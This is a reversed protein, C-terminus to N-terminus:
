RRRTGRTGRRGRRTGGRKKNIQEWKRRIKEELANMAKQDATLKDFHSTHRELSHRVSEREPKSYEPYKKVYVALKAKLDAFQEELTKRPM